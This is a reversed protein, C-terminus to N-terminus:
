SILTFALVIIAQQFDNQIGRSTDERAAWVSVGSSIQEPTLIGKLKIM